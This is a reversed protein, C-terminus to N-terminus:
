APPGAGPRHPQFVRLLNLDFKRQDMDRIADSLEM